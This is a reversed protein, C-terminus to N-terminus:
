CYCLQTPRTSLQITKLFSIDHITDNLLFSVVEAENIGLRKECAIHRLEILDQGRTVIVYVFMELYFLTIANGHM